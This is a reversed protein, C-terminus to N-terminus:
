AARLKLNTPNDTFYPVGLKKPIEYLCRITLFRFNRHLQTDQMKQPLGAPVTESPTVTM